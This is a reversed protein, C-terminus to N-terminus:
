KAELKEIEARLVDPEIFNTLGTKHEKQKLAWKLAALWAARCGDHWCLGGMKKYCEEYASKSM